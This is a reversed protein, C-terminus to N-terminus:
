GSGPQPGQLCLNVSIQYVVTADFAHWAYWLRNLLLLLLLLLM